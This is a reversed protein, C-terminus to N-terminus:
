PFLCCNIDGLSYQRNVSETDSASGGRGLTMTFHHCANFSYCSSNLLLSRCAGELPRSRNWSLKDDGIAPDAVSSPGSRLRCHGIGFCLPSCYISHGHGEVVTLDGSWRRAHVTETRECVVNPTADYAGGGRACEILLAKQCFGALPNM